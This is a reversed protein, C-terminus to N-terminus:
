NLKAIRIKFEELKQNDPNVARLLDYLEQAKIKDQLIIAIELFLDIYKPNKPELKVAQLISEKASEYKELKFLLGTIKYFRSAFSDNVLIAREYYDVAEELYGQGEAMEALRVLVGEDENDLQLVFRYTERSEELSGQLLYTDGLGRYASVSKPDQKIIKIFYEEAKQYNEQKLSEEAKKLLSNIVDKEEVSIIKEEVVEPESKASVEDKEQKQEHHLLNQIKGVYIRFKLQFKGWLKRLPQMYKIWQEHLEKGHKEIKKNIMEQKIKSVKEEPLLDVELNKIQPLKNWFIYFVVGLASLILVLFFIHYM